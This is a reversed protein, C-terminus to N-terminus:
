ASAGVDNSIIMKIELASLASRLMDWEARHVNLVCRSSSWKCWSRWNYQGMGIRFAYQYYYRFNGNEVQRCSLISFSGGYKLGSGSRFCWIRIRFSFLLDPDSLFSGSGSWCYQTLYRLRKSSGVTSVLLELLYHAKM